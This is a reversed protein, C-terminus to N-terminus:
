GYMRRSWGSEELIMQHSGLEAVITPVDKFIRGDLALHLIIVYTARQTTKEDCGKLICPTKLRVAETQFFEAADKACATNIFISGNAGTDVL